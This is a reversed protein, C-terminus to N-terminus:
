LNLQVLFFENEMERNYNLLIILKVEIIIIQINRWNKRKSFLIFFFGKTLLLM